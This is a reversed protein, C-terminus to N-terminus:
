AALTYHLLWNVKSSARLSVTSYGNMRKGNIRVVRFLIPRYNYVFHNYVKYNDYVYFDMSDINAFACLGMILLFSSTLLLVTKTRQSIERTRQFSEFTKLEEILIPFSKSQHTDTKMM